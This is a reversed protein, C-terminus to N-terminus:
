KGGNQKTEILENRWIKMDVPAEVGLRVRDPLINCVTVRVERGDPLILVVAEDKKRSLVLM